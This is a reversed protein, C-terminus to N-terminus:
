GNGAVPDQVARMLGVNVKCKVKTKRCLGSVSVLGVGFKVRACVPPLGAVKIRVFLSIPFGLM